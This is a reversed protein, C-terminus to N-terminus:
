SGRAKGLKRSLGKWVYISDYIFCAPLTGPTNALTPTLPNGKHSIEDRSYNNQDGGNGGDGGGDGKRCFHLKHVHTEKQDPSLLEM